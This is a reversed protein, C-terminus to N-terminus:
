NSDSPMTSPPSDIMPDIGRDSLKAWALFRDVSFAADYPAAKKLCYTAEDSLHRDDFFQASLTYITDRKDRPQNKAIADIKKLDSAGFSSQHRMQGLLAAFKGLSGGHDPLQAIQDLAAQFGAPDNLEDDVIAIHLASNPGPYKQMRIQFAKLSERPMGEIMQFVGLELFGDSNLKAYNKNLYEFEAKSAAARDGHGTRLCWVYWDYPSLDYHNMAEVLLSEARAWDHIGTHAEAACELGWESATDAADDAYPIATVYERRGIYYYAIDNEVQAHELGFDAGQALYEKLTALWGADDHQAKYIESLGRYGGIDPSVAIYQRYNRESDKWQKLEAYKEALALAVVPHDGHQSEWEAAKSADWNVRIDAAILVPSASAVAALLRRNGKEWDPDSHIQGSDLAFELDFSNVDFNQGEADWIRVPGPADKKFQEETWLLPSQHFTFQQLVAPPEVLCGAVADDNNHELGYADVLFKYLHGSILPQVEQVYDSADVGWKCCILHARREVEAFTTEEALRGLAAWSPETTDTEISGRNILAECIAARGNPNGGPQRLSDIQDRLDRPFGAIKPLRNGMLQSFIDPGTETLQNLLGPGAFDCMREVVRLCRPNLAWAAHALCMTAGECGSFEVTLFALYMRLGSMRADVGPQNLLEGTKFECFPRLLAVWDPPEADKFQSAAALDSLAADLLGAMARAYARHWLPVASNPYKMVMRQAYLLSRATYVAYERSWHYRTLQGLNAYARVLAGLRAPSEGDQRILSHIERLVAFQSMEEMDQLQPEVDAPLPADQVARNANGSWGAEKLTRVFDGRSWVETTEVWANLDNTWTYNDYPHWWRRNEPSIFDHVVVGDQNFDMELGANAAPTAAWERLSADRTQLGLEDRATILFSQRLVERAILGGYFYNDTASSAQLWLASGRHQNQVDSDPLAQALRQFSFLVCLL